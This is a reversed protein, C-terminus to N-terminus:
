EQMEEFGKLGHLDIPHYAKKGGARKGNRECPMPNPTVGLWVEAKARQRFWEAHLEGCLQHKSQLFCLWPKQCITFHGSSIDSLSKERCPTTDVMTNYVCRDVARSESPPEEVNYYYALLGQITMGGWFSGIRSSKWGGGRKFDGERVLDTLRNYVTMNPQVVLFGGQVPPAASRPTMMNPDTTYLLSRPERLLEDFNRVIIFDMDLHVVKYYDTLTYSYLKLLETAGCCGNNAIKERMFDGQIEEIPVPLQKEMIEYGLFELGERHKVGPDVFAVLHAEFEKSENMATHISYALVAAGDFYPGDKTITIAFAVKKKRPASPFSSHGDMGTNPLSSMPIDQYNFFQFPNYSSINSPLLGQPIQISSLVTFSEGSDVAPYYLLQLISIVVAMVIFIRLVRLSM